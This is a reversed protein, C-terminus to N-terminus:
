PTLWVETFRMVGDPNPVFNTLKKSHAKGEEDHVLFVMPVDKDILAQAQGYLAKRTDLDITTRAEQLLRTVEPNDYGYKDWIGNPHFWAYLTGDPDVRGAWWLLVADYEGARLESAYQAVEKADVTAKVGVDALQSQLATVMQVRIPQNIVLVSFEFGDPYGAQALLEKAKGVDRDRVTYAEPDYAWSSPPLMSYAPQGIGFFLSGLIASRDIALAMAERVDHNDFPSRSMNMVLQWTSLGTTTSYDLAPNNRISSVDKPPVTDIIDLSGAKLNTVKVNEDPIIHFELRDLHPLGERWYNPTRKLTVHDDQLWEVLQYPGSGVPQRALEDGLDKAAKPSVLLGGREALSSFLGPTPEKLNIRVTLDDVVEVSEVTAFEPAFPSATEKARVRDLNFKVAEADLPTGDSFTIGPHLTFTIAKGDESVEWKDAAQPVFRLNQDIDVLRDYIAYLIPRDFSSTNKHPDLSTPNGRVGVRLTGGQPIPTPTVTVAVQKEVVTTVQKEVVTTVQKEVVTTVQKEVVRTVEVAAPSPSSTCAAVFAILVAATLLYVMCRVPKSDLAVM